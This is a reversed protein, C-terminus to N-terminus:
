NKLHIFKKSKLSRVYDICVNYSIALIYSEISGTRNFNKVNKYIKIFSEQVLDDVTDLNNSFKRCLSSVIKFNQKFFVGQSLKSGNLIGNYLEDEDM